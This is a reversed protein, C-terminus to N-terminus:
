EEHIFCALAQRQVAVIAKWSGQASVTLTMLEDYWFPKAAAIAIGRVMAYVVLAGLFAYVLSKPPAFTRRNEKNPAGGRLDTVMM